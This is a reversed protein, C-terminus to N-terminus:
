FRSTNRFLFILVFVYGPLRSIFSSDYRSHASSSQFWSFCKCIFLLYPAPVTTHNPAITM